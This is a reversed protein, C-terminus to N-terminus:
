FMKLIEEILRGCQPCPDDLIVENKCATCNGSHITRTTDDEDISSHSFAWNQGNRAKKCVKCLLDDVLNQPPVNVQVETEEEPDTITQFFTTGLKELLFNM